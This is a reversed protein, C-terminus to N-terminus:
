RYIMVTLEFNTAKLSALNEVASDIRFVGITYEDSDPLDFRTQLISSRSMSTQFIVENKGRLVVLGLNLNGAVRAFSLDIVAGAEGTFTYILVGQGSVPIQGQMSQGTQLPFVFADQFGVPALGPFGYGDFREPSLESNSGSSDTNDVPQGPEIVQGDRLTCGVRITYVGGGAFYYKGGSQDQNGNSLRITYKGTASLVPSTITPRNSALALLASNSESSALANRKSPDFLMISFQLTSGITAGSVTITDGPSLSVDYEIFVHEPPFEGEVIDGCQIVASQANWTETPWTMGLFLLCFLVYKLFRM